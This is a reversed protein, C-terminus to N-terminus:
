RKWTIMEEQNNNQRKNGICLLTREIECENMTDAMDVFFINVGLLFRDDKKKNSM